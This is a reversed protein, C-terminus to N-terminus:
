HGPGSKQASFPMYIPKLGFVSEPSPIKVVKLLIPMAGFGNLTFQLLSGGINQSEVKDGNYTVTLATQGQPDTIRNLNHALQIDAGATGTSYEYKTQRGEFDVIRLDGNDDYSFSIERGSFDRITKLRGSTANVKDNEEDYEFPYYEFDIIRGMTDMVSSMQGSVDYFFEMKNRNRDQIGILRGFSDFSEYTRDPYIIRTSGDQMRHLKVFWGKPAEYGSVVNGNKIAKFRERRGSGDFYIMDGNYMALLRKNYNFDWGWGLPGSYIAQSRYTRRFQFDFGRGPISLDTEGYVFEGTDLMVNGYLPPNNLKIDTNVTHLLFNNGSISLMFVLILSVVTTM